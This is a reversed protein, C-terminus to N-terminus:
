PPGSSDGGAGGPASRLFRQGLYAAGEMDRRCGTRIQRSRGPGSYFQELGCFNSRLDLALLQTFLPPETTTDAAPWGPPRKSKGASLARHRRGAAAVAANQWRRAQRQFQQRRFHRLWRLLRRAQSPTWADSTQGVRWAAASACLSTSSSLSGCSSSIKLGGPPTGM